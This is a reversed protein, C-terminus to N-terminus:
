DHKALDETFYESQKNYFDYYIGHKEILEELRSM